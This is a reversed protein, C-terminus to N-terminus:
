HVTVSGTKIVASRAVVVDANGGNLQV